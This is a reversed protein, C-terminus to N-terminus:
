SNAYMKEQAEPHNMLPNGIASGLQPSTLVSKALNYLDEFGHKCTVPFSIKDSFAEFVENAKQNFNSSFNVAMSYSQCVALAYIALLDEFLIQQKSLKQCATAGYSVVDESENSSTINMLSSPQGLLCIKHVLANSTYHPIMFGSCIGVEESRPILYASFKKGNRQPNLLYAIQREITIAMKANSLAIIDAVTSLNEGHFNGGSFIGWCKGEFKFPYKQTSADLRTNEFILPNDTIADLEREIKRKQELIIEIRPGFIQPICRICYDNQVEDVDCSEDTLFERLIAAICKQGYQTRVDQIESSFASDLARVSNLFLGMLSLMSETLRLQKKYALAINSAMFSTGNILALGEKPKPNFANIGQLKLAQGADYVRGNYSVKVPDGMMARGLRALYALDGSAGLSGSEPIIPVIQHNIMDILTQLSQSSFGSRGKALSNCTIVMAGLTVDYSIADGMGADHSRILNKSLEEAMKPTMNVKRLDGVGTTIGYVPTNQDMLYDIFARGESLHIETDRSLAIKLEGSIIKILKSSTIKCHRGVYITGPFAEEL